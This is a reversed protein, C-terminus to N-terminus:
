VLDGSTTPNPKTSSSTKKPTKGQTSKGVEDPTEGSEGVVQWAADRHESTIDFGVVKEIAAVVPKGGKTFDEESDLTGIAEVIANILEQGTPLVIGKSTETSLHGGHRKAISKATEEPLPVVEGAPYEKIGVKLSTTPFVYNVTKTSTKSM